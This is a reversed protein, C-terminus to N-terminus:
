YEEPSSKYLNNTKDAFIFVDKSSRIQVIDEKMKQRFDNLVPRFKLANAMNFLDKEFAEPYKSLSPHHKSKFRYTEKSPEELTAAKNKMFFYTKWRMRTIVSEIKDTLLLKYSQHSPTPINKM